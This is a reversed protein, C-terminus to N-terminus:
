GICFCKFLNKVSLYFSASICILVLWCDDYEFLKSQIENSEWKTKIDKKWLMKGKLEFLFMKRKIKSVLLKDRDWVARVKNTIEVNM